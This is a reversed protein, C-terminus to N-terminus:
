WHRYPSPLSPVPLQCLPCHPHLPSQPTLLSKQAFPGDIFGPCFAPRFAQLGCLRRTDSSRPGQRLWCGAVRNCRGPLGSSSKPCGRLHLPPTWLQTGKLRPPFGYESPLALLGRRVPACRNYCALASLVSAPRPVPCGSGSFNRCRRQGPETVYTSVRDLHDGGRTARLWAADKCIARAAPRHASYPMGLGPSPSSGRIPPASSAPLGATM